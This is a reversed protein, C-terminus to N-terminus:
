ALERRRLAPDLGRSRGRLREDPLQGLCRLHSGTGNTQTSWSMGDYHLITADAGVAFVDAASSGWVGYLNSTTGSSQTGWTTGNYHLITGGAGVAFVDTSSSGWVGNLASGTEITPGSWRTGNYHM